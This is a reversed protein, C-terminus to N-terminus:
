GVAAADGAALRRQADRCTAERAFLEDVVTSMIRGLQVVLIREM